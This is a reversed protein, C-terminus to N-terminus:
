YGISHHQHSHVQYWRLSGGSGTTWKKKGFRPGTQRKHELEYFYSERDEPNGASFEVFLFFIAALSVPEYIAAAPQAYISVPYSFISFASCIAFTVPYFCIRIIQRQERPRVYCSLHSVAVFLMLSVCVCSFGAAIYFELHQFTVNGVIPKEANKSDIADKPLPCTANFLGMATLHNSTSCRSISPLASPYIFECGVYAARTYICPDPTSYVQGPM